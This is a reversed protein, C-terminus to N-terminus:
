LDSIDKLIELVEEESLRGLVDDTIHTSYDLHGKENIVAVEFLGEDGGYSFTHRVVSAGYGNTFKVKLQHGGHLDGFSWEKVKDTLEPFNERVALATM